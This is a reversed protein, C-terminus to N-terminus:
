RLDRCSFIQLRRVVRDRYCVDRLGLDTVSGFEQLLRAPPAQPEPGQRVYLANQGRRERYGPWLHFQNEQHDSSLCYVLPAERVAAKAAPLYFSLLGATGYHDGIVFVPKGEALLGERAEGVVKGAHSWGRVRRLPDKDAPLPRRFIRGILNTDHLLVVAVLGLLVGTAAWRGVARIGARWRSDAHAVLVCLLPLAAPAIWNPQVRARLTYLWYILFLPAGMLLCYLQLAQHHRQRWVAAGAWIMGAFFVPNLLAAEALTFDVLFRTTPRWASALGARDQLHDVTIWGHGANWVLVPLSCAAAVALALYPGPGRLHRRAPASSCFFLAFSILQLLATYKSLFGLGLWLGTLLWDRRGREERVARWGSLMALTWFLVSLPDITMLISGVSLLPTATVILILWVGARASFERAFFALLTWGLIAAIIPSFFRVGFETDGWLHTGLFQVYAILPPKSFYSLAPHKSWVWQYAEDESLEIKGAALYGLRAVLLLGVLVNGLHLWQRAAALEPNRVAPQGPRWALPDPQWQARRLSPFQRWWLPFWRPGAAQWLRECGWLLGLGTGSGLLAGALVDSPYHVGNYVRSCAVAAALPALVRWSRRYYAASIVLAGFWNAAHGSPMSYSGGRGVLLRVDPLADFPRPRAFLHKFLDSLSNSAALGLVLMLVCVRGRAGGKWLLGIALVLLAPTFFANGSLFPMLADLFPAGLSQNVLRFGAADLAELWNM